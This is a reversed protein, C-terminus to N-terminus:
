DKFTIKPCIKDKKAKVYSSLLTPSKSNFKEFIWHLILCISLILTCLLVFTIVGIVPALYYLSSGNPIILDLSIVGFGTLVLFGAAVYIIYKLVVLVVQWFYTCLYESPFKGDKRLLKYHWSSRNIQM